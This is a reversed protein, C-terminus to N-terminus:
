RQMSPQHVTRLVEEYSEITRGMDEARSDKLAALMISAIAKKDPPPDPKNTHVDVNTIEVRGNDVEAEISLFNIGFLEQLKQIGKLKFGILENSEISRYLTLRDDVREAVPTEDRFMLHISDGVPNYWPANAGAPVNDDNLVHNIYRELEDAM